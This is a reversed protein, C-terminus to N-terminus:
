VRERCSARGIEMTELVDRLSAHKAFVYEGYKLDNAKLALVGGIFVPNGQDIVGERRLLDAIELKGMRSVAILFAEDESLGSAVLADIQDRLHAELEDVDTGIAERKAVFGRWEIIRQEVGM